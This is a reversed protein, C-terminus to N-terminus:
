IEDFRDSRLKRGQCRNCFAYDEHDQAWGYHGCPLHVRKDKKTRKRSRVIRSKSYRPEQHSEWFLWYRSNGIHKKWDGEDVLARAEKLSEAEIIVRARERILSTREITLLYESM